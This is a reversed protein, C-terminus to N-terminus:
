DQPPGGQLLRTPDLTDMRCVGRIIEVGAWLPPELRQPLQHQKTQSKLPRGIARRDQCSPRTIQRARLGAVSASRRREIQLDPHAYLRWRKPSNLALSSRSTAAAEDLSNLFQQSFGSRAEVEEQTLGKAPRQHHALTFRDATDSKKGAVASRFLSSPQRRTM